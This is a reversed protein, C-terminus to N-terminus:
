QGGISRRKARPLHRRSRARSAVTGPHASSGVIPSRLARSKVPKTPAARIRGATEAVTFSTRCSGRHLDSVRPRVAKRPGAIRVSAHGRRLRHRGDLEAPISAAMETSAPRCTCYPRRPCFWLARGSFLSRLNRRQSSPPIMSPHGCSIRLRRRGGDAGGCGCYRFKWDNIKHL